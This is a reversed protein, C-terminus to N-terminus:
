HCLDRVAFKGIVKGQEDAVEIRACCWGGDDDELLDRALSRAQRLAATSDIQSEGVEDLLWTGDFVHFFFRQRAM